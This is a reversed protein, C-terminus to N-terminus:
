LNAKRQSREVSGEKADKGNDESLHAKKLPENNEPSNRVRKSKKTDEELKLEDGTRADLFTDDGENILM